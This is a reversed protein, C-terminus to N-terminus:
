FRFALTMFLRLATGDGRVPIDAAGGLGLLVHEGILLDGGLNPSLAFRPGTSPSLIAGAQLGIRGSIPHPASRFTPGVLLSVRGSDFAYAASADLLFWEDAWFSGTAGVFLPPGLPQGTLPGRDFISAGWDVALSFSSRGPPEAYGGKALESGEPGDTRGRAQGLASSSLLLAALAALSSLHPRPM